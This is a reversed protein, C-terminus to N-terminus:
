TLHAKRAAALRSELEAIVTEAPIGDDNAITSEIADKARSVFDTAGLVVRLAQDLDDKEIIPKSDRVTRGIACNLAYQLVGDVDAITKGSLLPAVAIAEIDAALGTNHHRLWNEIHRPIQDQPPMAFLVKETFRGSRM